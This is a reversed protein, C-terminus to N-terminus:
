GALPCLQAKPTSPSLSAPLGTETWVGAVRHSVADQDTKFGPLGLGSTSKGSHGADAGAQAWKGTQEDM